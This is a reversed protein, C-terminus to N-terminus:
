CGFKCLKWVTLPSDIRNLFVWVSSRVLDKKKIRRETQNIGDAPSPDTQTYWVKQRTDLLFNRIKFIKWVSETQWQIMNGPKQWHNKMLFYFFTEGLTLAKMPSETQGNYWMLPNNDLRKPFIERNGDSGRRAPAPPGRIYNYWLCCCCDLM